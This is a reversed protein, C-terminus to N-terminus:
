QAFIIYHNILYYPSTTNHLKITTHKSTFYHQTTNLTISHQTTLYHQTTYNIHLLTIQTTCYLFTTCHQLIINHQITLCHQTSCYSTKTKHLLIINHKTSLYHQTIYILSNDLGLKIWSVTVYGLNPKVFWWRGLWWWM